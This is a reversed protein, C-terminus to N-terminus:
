NEIAELYRQIVIKEDFEKEVKLRGNIGLQNLEVKSITLVKEIKEILSDLDKPKALFGNYKDNVIDRCGVNDTTIIPKAMAAAEILSRPVGERYYSPFLICDCEKIEQRVDKSTGLYKINSEKEWKQLEEKSIHKQEEVYVKGLLQFEIDPYKYKLKKSAENILKVGKNENIRGLFLFKFKKDNIEKKLPKFKDIDVGSGPIRGCIKSDILKSDLFIKLDDDNQFFVKKPYKFSIKYLSKVIKSTLNNTSFMDGLGTVNNIVPIGLLKAALTGYINPKITFQLIYNPKEKKYIKYYSYCLKLDNIINKGRRDITLEIYRWGENKINQSTGDDGALAIIEYGKKELEKMLGYRFNYIVFANNASLLIKKNQM